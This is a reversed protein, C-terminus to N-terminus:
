KFELNIFPKLVREVYANDDEEIWSYINGIDNNLDVACISMLCMVDQYNDVNKDKDYGIALMARYYAVIVAHWMISCSYISLLGDELIRRRIVTMRVRLIAFYLTILIIMIAITMVIYKEKFYMEIATIILPALSLFAVIHLVIFMNVLYSGAHWSAKEALMKKPEFWRYKCGPRNENLNAIKWFGTIYINEYTTAQVIRWALMAEEWGTNFMFEKRKNHVQSNLRGLQELYLQFGHNRNAGSYKHIGIRTVALVLIVLLICSFGLYPNEKQFKIILCLLATNFALVTFSYQTFCNKLKWAEDRLFEIFKEKWSFFGDMNKCNM